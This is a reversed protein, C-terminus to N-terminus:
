TPAAHTVARDDGGQDGGGQMLYVVGAGEAMRIVYTKELSSRTRLEWVLLLIAQVREHPKVPAAFNCGCM